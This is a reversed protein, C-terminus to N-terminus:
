RTELTASIMKDKHVSAYVVLVRFFLRKLIGRDKM